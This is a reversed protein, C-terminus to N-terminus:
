ASEKPWQIASQKSLLKRLKKISLAPSSTHLIAHCNPCVPRLDEIPDVEYEEGLSRLERLHHVHVVGEGLEGYLEAMNYGCVACNWGHHEICKTRAKRNREYANVTITRAAGEFLKEAEKIEEAFLGADPEGSLASNIADFHAKDIEIAAYVTKHRPLAPWDITVGNPVFNEWAEVDVRSPYYNFDDTFNEYTVSPPFYVFGKTYSKGRKLYSEISDIKDSSKSQRRPNIVTGTAFYKNGPVYAVFKDGPSFEALRKWNRTIAAKRNPEDNGKRAYQYGMMWLKNRIGHHLCDMAEFNVLWHKNGTM